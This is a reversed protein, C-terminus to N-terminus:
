FQQWLKSVMYGNDRSTDMIKDVNQRYEFVIEIFNDHLPFTLRHVHISKDISGNVDSDGDVLHKILTYKGVNLDGVIFVNVFKTQSGPSIPESAPLSMKRNVKNAAYTEWSDEDKVKTPSKNCSNDKFSRRRRSPSRNYYSNSRARNFVDTPSLYQAQSNKPLTNRRHSIASSSLLLSNNNTNTNNENFLSASAAISSVPSPPSPPPLAQSSPSIPSKITFSPPHNGQLHNPSTLRSSQKTYSFGLYDPRQNSTTLRACPRPSPSRHSGTSREYRISSSRPSHRPSTYPEMM